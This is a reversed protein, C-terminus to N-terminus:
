PASRSGPELIQETRDLSLVDRVLERLQMEIDITWPTWCTPPAGPVEGTIGMVLVPSGRELQQEDLAITRTDDRGRVRVHLVTRRSDYVLSWQTDDQCVNDLIAFAATVPDDSSGTFERVRRAARVFREPSGTGGTEMRSGGFGSHRELYRVSNDYTDNALVPVPLDHGRRVVARGGLFEIAAADGTRDAVIYHLGMYEKVIAVDGLASVVEDVTGHRDLQRQVWTFEDVAPLDGREPYLSPTFSLEEVVLGAENIGGLPLDSGLQNCTISAYPRGSARNRPHTVILGAGLEWDLNKGLVTEGERSLVFATCQFTSDPASIAAGGSVTRRSSAGGM